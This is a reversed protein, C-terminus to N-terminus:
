MKSNDKIKKLFFVSKIKVNLSSVSEHLQVQKILM